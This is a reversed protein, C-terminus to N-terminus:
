VLRAKEVSRGTAIVDHGSSALVEVLNGGIFGMSGTVLIKM